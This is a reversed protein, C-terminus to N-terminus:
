AHTYLSLLEQWESDSLLYRFFVLINQRTFWRPMDARATPHRPIDEWFCTVVCTSLHNAADAEPLGPQLLCWDAYAYARAIFDDNRPQEYSQCFELSIALWLAM